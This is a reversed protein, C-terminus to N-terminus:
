RVGKSQANSPPCTGTLIGGDYVVKCQMVDAKVYGGESLENLRDELSFRCGHARHRM